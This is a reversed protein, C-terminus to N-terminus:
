KPSSDLPSLRMMSTGSGTGILRDARLRPRCQEAAGGIIERMTEPVLEPRILYTGDARTELHIVKCRLREPLEDALTPPPAIHCDTTILPRTAM